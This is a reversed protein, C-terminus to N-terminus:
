NEDLGLEELLESAELKDQTDQYPSVVQLDRASDRILIPAGPSVERGCQTCTFPSVATM